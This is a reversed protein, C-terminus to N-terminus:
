CYGQGRGVLRRFLVRWGWGTHGDSNDTLMELHKRPPLTVRTSFWQHLNYSFIEKRTNNVDSNAESMKLTYGSKMRAKLFLFVYLLRNSRDEHHNYM